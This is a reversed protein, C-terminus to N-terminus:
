LKVKLLQLVKPHVKLHVKLQNRQDLMQERCAGARWYCWLLVFHEIRFVIVEPIGGM